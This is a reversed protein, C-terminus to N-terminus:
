NGEEPEDAAQTFVTEFAGSGPTVGRDEAPIRDTVESLWAADQLWEELTALGRKTWRWMTKPDYAKGGNRDNGLLRGAEPYSLNAMVCMRVAARDPEQLEDVLHDLVLQIVELRPRAFYDDRDATQAAIEGFAFARPDLSTREPRRM